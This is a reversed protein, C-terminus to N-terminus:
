WKEKFDSGEDQQAKTKIEEESVQSAEKPISYENKEKLLKNNEELLTIIKAIGWYWLLFGRFIIFLVIPLVIILLIEFGGLSGM